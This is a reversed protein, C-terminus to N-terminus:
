NLIIHLIYGLKDYVKLGSYDPTLRGLSYKLWCQIPGYPNGYTISVCSPQQYCYYQCKFLTLGTYYRIDNGYRDSNLHEIYSYIM